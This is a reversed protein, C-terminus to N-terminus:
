TDSAPRPAQFSYGAGPETIIIPTPPAAAALKKRIRSVMVDITRAKTDSEASSVVELLYDRGLPSGAAQVLAALLDFEARTLRVLGATPDALERRVLDLTWGSFELVPLTRVPPAPTRRYRRLVARVRAVLERVEVPKVIYDDGSELGRVRADPSGMGTMYIVAIDRQRRLREVLDFGSGDPLQVDVLVLDFGGAALLAEATGADAASVTSFGDAELCGTVIDRVIADDEVILVRAAGAPRSMPARTEPAIALQKKRLGHWNFCSAPTRLPRKLHPPMIQAPIAIKAASILGFQQM